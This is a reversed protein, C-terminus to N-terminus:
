PGEVARWSCGRLQLGLDRPDNSTKLVRDLEIVLTNPAAANAPLVWRREVHGDCVIREIVQGNFTITAIPKEVPVDFALKLEGKRPVVGLQAVSRRGMWRWVEAGNNEEGYWGDGYTVVSVLPRVAIEFYRKRSINFLHGRTRIFNISGPMGSAGEAVLWANADSASFGSFDDSVASVRKYDGLLYEAIPDMEGVYLTSKTRDVHQRVWQMAAFTPADHRRVDNL